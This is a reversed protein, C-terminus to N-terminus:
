QGNSLQNVLEQLEKISSATNNNNMVEEMLKVAEVPSTELMAKAAVTTVTNQLMFMQQQQNVVNLMAMGAAHTLIQGSISTLSGRGEELLNNIEKISDVVQSNVFSSNGEFNIDNTNSDSM